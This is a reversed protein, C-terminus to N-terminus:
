ISLIFNFYMQLLKEGWLFTMLGGLALYPGFAVYQKFKKKGTLIL